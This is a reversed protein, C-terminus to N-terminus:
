PETSKGMAHLPDQGVKLRHGRRDCIGLCEIYHNRRICKVMQIRLLFKSDQLRDELCDVWGTPEQIRINHHGFSGIHLQSNLLNTNFSDSIAGRNLVLAEAASIGCFLKEIVKFCRLLILRLCQVLVHSDKTFRSNCISFHKSLIDHPRSRRSSPCHWM